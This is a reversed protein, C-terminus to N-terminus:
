NKDADKKEEDLIEDNFPQKIGDYITEPAKPNKGGVEGAGKIAEYQKIALKTIEDKLSKNPFLFNYYKDEGGQMVKKSPFGLFLSNKNNVLNIDKIDIRYGGFTISCTVNALIKGLNLKVPYVRVEV